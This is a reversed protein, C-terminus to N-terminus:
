TDGRVLLQELTRWARRAAQDAPGEIAGDKLAFLFGMVAGTVLVVASDIDLGERLLRKEDAERLCSGIFERGRNRLAAVRRPGDAGLAQSIQDSFVLSQIGPQLAISRLRDLVFEELREFPEQTSRPAEDMLEQLRDLVGVAVENMDKFHRFVTGDGIGVERAINAATFARLGREGIIEIAADVIERRREDTSKRSAM